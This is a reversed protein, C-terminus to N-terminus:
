VSKLITRRGAEWVAATGAVLTTGEVESQAPVGKEKLCHRREAGWM